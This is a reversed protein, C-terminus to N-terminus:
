IVCTGKSKKRGLGENDVVDEAWQVSRNTPPPAGRLRLIAQPETQTQAQTSSEGEVTTQSQSTPVPRQRTAPAAARNRESTM